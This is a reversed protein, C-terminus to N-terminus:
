SAWWIAWHFKIAALSVTVLCYILNLENRCNKFQASVKLKARVQYSNFNYARYSINADTFFKMVQFNLTNLYLLQAAELEFRYDNFYSSFGEVFVSSLIENLSIRMYMCQLCIRQFRTTSWFVQNSSLCMVLTFRFKLTYGELSCESVTLSYM